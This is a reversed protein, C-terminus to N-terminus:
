ARELPTPGSLLIPVKNNEKTLLPFNAWILLTKLKVNLTTFYPIPNKRRKPL